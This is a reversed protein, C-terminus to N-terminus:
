KRANVMGYERVLVYGCAKATGSRFTLSTDQLRNTQVQQRKIGTNLSPRSMCSYPVNNGHVLVNFAESGREQNISLCINHKVLDKPPCDGPLDISPTAVCESDRARVKVFQLLVLDGKQVVKTGRQDRRGQIPIFPNPNCTRTLLNLSICTM